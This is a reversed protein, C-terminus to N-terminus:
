DFKISVDNIMNDFLKKANKTAQEERKSKSLHNDLDAQMGFLYARKFCRKLALPKTKFQAYDKHFFEVAYPSKMGRFNYVMNLFRQTYDKNEGLVGVKIDNDKRRYFLTINDTIEVISNM